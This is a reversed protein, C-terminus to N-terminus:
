SKNHPKMKRAELESYVRCDDDNSINRKGLSQRKCFFFRQKKKLWKNIVIRTKYHLKSITIWLCISFFSNYYRTSKAITGTSSTSENLIRSERIDGYARWMLLVDYWLRSSSSYARPMHREWMHLCYISDWRLCVGFLCQKLDYRTWRLFRWLFFSLSRLKVASIRQLKHIYIWCCLERTILIRIQRIITKMYCNSNYVAHSIPVLARM